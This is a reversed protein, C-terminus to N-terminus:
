EATVTWTSGSQTAVYGDKVWESPDFNFTGGTIILQGGNTLVVKNKSAVGGFDGGQVYIISNDAWFYANNARDNKFTGDKITITSANLACFIYRSSREPNHNIVGSNFVVDAGNAAYVGARTFNAENIEVDYDGNVQIAYWKSTATSGANLENGNFDLTVSRNVEFGTGVNDIKGTVEVADGSNSNIAADFASASTVPGFYVDFEAAGDLNFTGKPAVPDVGEEYENSCFAIEYLNGGVLQNTGEFNITANCADDNMKRVNVPIYANITADKITVAVARSKEGDLRVGYGTANIDAGTITASAMNGLSIGNKCNKITVNEIVTANDTSQFQALSHINTASCNKIVANYTTLLKIGVISENYSSSSFTCNDVTVNHSYNYRGNIKTPADIFTVNNNSEFCINQFTLTETGNARADGNVTITGDYKYNSGEHVGNIVLNVGEKQLITIDGKINDGLYLVTEGEPAADIAAQLDEASFIKHVYHEGDFAPVIEVKVDVDSTILQGYINTRWNRQVPVSAYKREKAEGNVAFFDFKVDVLEKDAPCLLYNMAMYEYGPVPFKEYGEANANKLGYKANADYNPYDAANFTVDTPDSVTKGWLNLTQYAQVTVQTKQLTYGAKSAEVIDSTGINLQAFPRYLKIEETKSADVEITMWNFFADYNENNSTVGNYDVSISANEWDISYPTSNNEVSADTDADAWFIVDYTNGTVLQLDVTTSIEFTHNEVTLEDLYTRTRNDGEGNVAYVAYHLTQATTGDGFARTAAGLEPTTVKISVKALDGAQPQKVLEEQQCSATFLMTAMASLALLYNKKM